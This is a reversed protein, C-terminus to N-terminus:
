RRARPALPWWCRAGTPGGAIGGRGRRRLCPGRHRQRFRGRGAGYRWGHCIVEFVGQTLRLISIDFTGGGLDYVAYIGEAAQDLGYAIAAATPENLLRLVNLGAM